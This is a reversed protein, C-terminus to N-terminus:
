KEPDVFVWLTSRQRVPYEKGKHEKKGVQRQATICWWGPEPLTCTAVGNPDTRVTRTVFEDAPLEKPPAPNYREIEVLAAGLPKGDALAQAQFVTGPLLGYPRTLPLMEFTQGATTEWGKQAQAHVVVKVTDELFEGDEEMFVPLANLTFVYDGREAPTFRLRYANVKKQAPDRELTKLLDLKSGDPTVVRLQAPPSADFLQHEYPHGWLFSFTVAEGRKVSAREPLLMHFHAQVPAVAASVVFLSLLVRCM